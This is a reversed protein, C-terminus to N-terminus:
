LIIVQALSRTKIEAAIKHWERGHKSLGELFKQHEEKTWRGNQSGNVVKGPLGTTQMVFLNPHFVTCPRFRVDPDEGEQLEQLQHRLDHLRSICALLDGDEMTELGSERLLPSRATNSSAAM